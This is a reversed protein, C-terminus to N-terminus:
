KNGSSGRQNAAGGPSSTANGGPGSGFQNGTGDQTREQVPGTGDGEGPGYGNANADGFPGLPGDGEGPGYGNANPDGFPGLPGKCDGDCEGPGDGHQYPANASAMPGESWNATTQTQEALPTGDALAVVISAPVLMAAVIGVIIASRKM